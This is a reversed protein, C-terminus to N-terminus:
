DGVGARLLPELVKWVNEAVRQHGEPNPHILDPQNLEAVGGVGELLSPILTVEKEKVVAPFIEQYAKTYEPGMNQPMQMGALVIRMDPNAKRARDIIIGLNKKTEETALGRLGDNGGLEIVLVDAKRKLVWALRRVGGATTDGSFGANQVQCSLGAQNIKDQIISPFAEEREVGLGAALSDGLFVVTQSEPQDGKLVAHSLPLALLGVLWRALRMKLETRM